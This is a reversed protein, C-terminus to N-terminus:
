PRCSLMACYVCEPDLGHLMAAAPSYTAPMENSYRPWLLLLLPAGISRTNGLSPNPQSRSAKAMWLPVLFSSAALFSAFQALLLSAMISYPLFKAIVACGPTAGLSALM